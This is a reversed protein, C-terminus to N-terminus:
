GRQCCTEHLWMPHGTMCDVSLAAHGAPQAQLSERRLAESGPNICIPGTSQFSSRCARLSDSAPSTTGSGLKGQPKHYHTM